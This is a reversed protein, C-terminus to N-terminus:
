VYRRELMTFSARATMCEGGKPRGPKATNNFGHIDFHAWAINDGVFRRLFLAATIAGGFGGPPANDIDAISSSIDDDYPDYLPLRWIPDRSTAAAAELDSALQSDDTFYPPLDLGTAIRAAGTLTAMDLIMEPKDESALALADALVLRGEADTNGIEVTLGKRSTLVDGPRFANASVANEVAPILVRLRIPLKQSMIMHALALVTAAGGMDKKMWRMGAAPKLDLGGTDFCVGKGVLTVKPHNAKGWTMDILRPPDAAARGVTHIMPFNKKLLDDGVTVNIKAKFRKAVGRAAQELASPGMDNTPTNILDRALYAGKAIELLRNADINKPAVLRAAQEKASKYRDFRYASLLWALAAEEAEEDSLSTKIVWPGEPASAAFDAIAFRRKARAAPTGWGFLAGAVGGKANPLLVTQGLAGTFGASKAWARQAPKLAALTKKAESTEILSLPIANNGAAAFEPTM